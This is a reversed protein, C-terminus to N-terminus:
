LDWEHMGNCVMELFDSDSTINVSDIDLGSSCYVEYSLGYYNITHLIHKYGDFNLSLQKIRDMMLECGIIAEQSENCEEKTQTWGCYCDHCNGDSGMLYNSCDGCYMREM